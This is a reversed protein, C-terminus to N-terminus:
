ANLFSRVAECSPGPAEFFPDHGIDHLVEIRVAALHRRFLGAGWVAVADRDGYIVLVPCTIAPLDDVLDLTAFTKQLPRINDNDLPLGLAREREMERARVEPLGEQLTAWAAYLRARREESVPRWSFALLWWIARAAMKTTRAWGLARFTPGMMKRPIACPFAGALVIRECHAPHRLAYNLAVFGGM